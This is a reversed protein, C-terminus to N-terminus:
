GSFRVKIKKKELRLNRDFGNVVEWRTEVRFQRLSVGKAEKPIQRGDGVRSAEVAEFDKV